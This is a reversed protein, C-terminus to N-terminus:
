YSVQIEIFDNLSIENIFYRLKVNIIMDQPNTVELSQIEIYPVFRSLQSQIVSEMDGIVGSETFEFLYARLCAGYDEEDFTREDPCTLLTNKINFKVLDQLEETTIADFGSNKDSIELPFKVTVGSM